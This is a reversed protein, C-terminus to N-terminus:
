NSKLKVTFRCGAEKLNEVSIDGGIVDLIQKVLALGLGNGEEKRSSDEQYFRDFIHKQADEGIGPGQDEITFIVNDNEKFLRMKIVGAFPGYKISNEILNNWVHMLLVENGFFDINDLEVDLDNEKETWKSELYLISQRIQEDLRFKTAKEKVNQVDLKSLLLMNSVLTTLRRTNLLIKDIYINEEDSTDTNQLLTAYGEIANIPTKFEHSVNSVFDTQLIETSRLEKTMVNFAHRIQRVEIFGKKEDLSIDYNGEAVANMAEGLKRIPNFFFKVFITTLATSLLICFLLLWSLETLPGNINFVDTSVYVLVSAIIDVVFLEVIVFTTLILEMRLWPLSKKKKM